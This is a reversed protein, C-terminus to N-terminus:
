FQFYLFAAGSGNCVVTLVVALGFAVGELAAFPWSSRTAAILRGSNETIGRELCHFALCLLVIGCQLVPWETSWATTGLAGLVTTAAGVDPSRFFVWLVCVAHFTLVVAPLDGWGLRAAEQERGRSLFRHVVLLVGHLAGWLLFTWNAGHWLGGLVMTALLNLATRAPGARNGGLPIYLYDRLWRSLTMHWRRWFEAPSRSLYPEAFNLPLEYGLLCALGRAIDSYGSFDCYIQFALSYIAILHVPASAVGPREFVADVFPALLFDGMVVKKVMGGAVLWLGRRIRDATYVGRLELQPLFESGRLIPGAILHPFFMVFLLYQSFRPLHLRGRFIDVNLAILVFCYFSIGLPLFLETAPAAAGTVTALVELFFGRYKFYALVGLMAVISAVLPTRRDTGREISVAFGYNVVVVALFLLLYVPIWLSYFALSAALLWANRWRRPLLAHLGAVLLFFVVFQPTNFLM